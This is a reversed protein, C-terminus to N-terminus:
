QRIDKHHTLVAKQLLPFPLCHYLFHQIQHGWYPVVTIPGRGVRNLSAEAYVNAPPCMLSAKRIKSLKSPVFYPCHCEVIINKEKLETALSLSFHDVFAKSASYLDYLPDGCAMIGAASAINVIAGRKREIMGPVCMKTVMATVECNLHIITKLRDEPLETLYMAYEYSIGVNNILIGVPIEKFVPELAAKLADTDQSMDIAVTRISVNYKETIEKACNDLKEQSRSVLIVNIGRAALRKAYGLGIGDTAGTVMAWEGYSKKLNKGPGFYYVFFNLLRFCQYLLYLLFVFAGITIFKDCLYKNVFIHITDYLM